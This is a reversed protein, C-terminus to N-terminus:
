FIHLEHVGMYLDRHLLQFIPHSDLLLPVLEERWFLAHFKECEKYM